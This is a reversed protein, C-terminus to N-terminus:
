NKKSKQVRVEAVLNNLLERMFKIANEDAFEGKENIKKDVFNIIVEPKNIIRSDLFVFSQRLHYQARSGGMMGTSSSMIAGIKTAFVNNPVSAWDIANKLFGPVSYNYEPTVILFGDSELVLKKFEIVSKDPEKVYDSNFVPIKSIDAILLNSGEPMLNAAKELVKRSFSGKRLSGGIGVIVVENEVSMDFFGSNM